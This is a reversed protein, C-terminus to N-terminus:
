TYNFICMYIYIYTTDGSNEFHATPVIDMMDMKWRLYVTRIFQPLLPHHTRAFDLDIVDVALHKNAPPPGPQQTFMWYQWIASLNLLPDFMPIRLKPKWQWWIIWLWTSNGTIHNFCYYVMGWVMKIPPIFMYLGDLMPHNIRTKGVHFIVILWWEDSNVVMLWLYSPQYWVLSNMKNTALDGLHLSGHPARSTPHTKSSRVRLHTPLDNWLIGIHWTWLSNILYTYIFIYTQIWIFSLTM